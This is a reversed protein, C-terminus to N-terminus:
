RPAESTCDGQNGDVLARVQAGCFFGQCRGNLVRTRRRLGSVDAPPILSAFADRIEGRTVRECFCVIRGYDPDAAIRENDQYPRTRYEGINPMLPPVPLDRRDAPAVGVSYLLERVYEAIAMGSTLGKSRIGAVLVYLQTADIDILYDKSDIAARLGAYTATVEEDLLQPMLRTGKTLLFEFGDESTGTASRDELDEATPGLMVNGYITPSVLVGKGKASPVPLVIKPVLPRALKDFVFLEGRRPTVEFRAFGLMADIQDAGLGAANIIWRARLEGATTAITASDEGVLIGTVRHSRLLKTGRAVAETALALNTTWTCIISEDPVSLGGLAGRGLDPVQRYVEDSGVVECGHYGNKAAKDKLGPLANLEEDTWAVLLAGTREVPIGTVRANTRLLKCGRTVLRLELTGPTADFGTHLIATNAKSTGDGVDNRAEILAVTSETGALERAIAAGVIGGGIVAFDYTMQTSIM